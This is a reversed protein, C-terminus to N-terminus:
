TQKLFPNEVILGDISQQDQLDETYL